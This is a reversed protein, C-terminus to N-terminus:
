RTGEKERRRGGELVPLRTESFAANSAPVRIWRRQAEIDLAANKSIRSCSGAVGAANSYPRAPM